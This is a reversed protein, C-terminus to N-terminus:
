LSSALEITRLKWWASAFARAQQRDHDSPPAPDSALIVEGAPRRVTLNSARLEALQVIVVDGRPAGHHAHGPDRAIRRRVTGPQWRRFYVWVEAGAHLEEPQRIVTVAPGPAAQATLAITGLQLRRNVGGPRM